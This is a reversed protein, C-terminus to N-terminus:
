ESKDKQCKFIIAGDPFYDLIDKKEQQMTIQFKMKLM